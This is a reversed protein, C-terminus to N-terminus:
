KSTSPAATCITRFRLQVQFLGGVSQALAALMREVRDRRLEASSSMWDSSDIENGGAKILYNRSFALFNCIQFRLPLLLSRLARISHRHEQCIYNSSTMSNSAHCEGCHIWSLTCQSRREKWKLLWNVIGAM